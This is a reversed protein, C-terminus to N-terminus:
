RLRSTSVDLSLLSSLARINANAVVAPKRVTKVATPSRGDSEIRSNGMLSDRSVGM